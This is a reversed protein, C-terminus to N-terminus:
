FWANLVVMIPLKSQVIMNLAGIQVGHLRETANIVGIQLGTMDDAFNIAGFQAGSFRRAFNVGALAFGDYDEQDANAVGFQLGVASSNNWNLAGIQLGYYSIAYNVAGFAFGGSTEGFDVNFLGLQGALEDEFVCNALAGLQLGCVRGRTWTFGACQIGAFEGDTKEFLGCDLGYVDSNIGLVGGLRLGYVDSNMFPLQVPAAIGIGLPSWAWAREDAKANSCIGAITLAVSMVMVLKKM